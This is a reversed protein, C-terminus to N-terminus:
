NKWESDVQKKMEEEISEAFLIYVFVKENWRFIVEECVCAYFIAKFPFQILPGPIHIEEISAKKKSLLGM